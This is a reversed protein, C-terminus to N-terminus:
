VARFQGEELWVQLTALFPQFEVLYGRIDGDEDDYGIVTGQTGRVLTVGDATEVDATLEVLTKAAAIMKPFRYESCHNCMSHLLGHPCM